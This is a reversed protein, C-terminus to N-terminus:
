LVVLMDGQAGLKLNKFYRICTDVSFFDECIKYHDIVKQNKKIKVKLFSRMFTFGLRDIEKMCNKFVDTYAETYEFSVFKVPKTLGALVKDEYGEVDIKIYEPLGYKKILKDLTTAKIKKTPNWKIKPNNHRRKWDDNCTSISDHSTCQIFDVNVSKNSVCTNEVAYAKEFRGKVILAQQPEVAIVNCGLESFYHTVDGINAGIDFITKGAVEDALYGYVTDRFKIPKM